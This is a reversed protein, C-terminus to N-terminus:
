EIVKDALLLLRTPIEHGIAKATKLNIVLEFRTPQEIPTDAAKAGRLVKVLITARLRFMEALRPGYALMAGQEADEAWQYISPLRLNTVRAIFDAADISFMPTALFNIAQAGAAKVDDLAAVVEERRDVARVLLEIGRAHAADQLQQLHDLSANKADALTAIKRAGPVAEILIDQRKGDLEPSLISLGTVNGGPRGLSGALGAGVLDEGIGVLPITRTLQQLVRLFPEPGAVIADPAAAVLSAAVSPGQDASVGFGGPLVILNEGEMFGSRGLEDFLVTWAPSKRPVPNLAGIRYTRGREQAHAALPWAAAVGSLLAFFERRRM